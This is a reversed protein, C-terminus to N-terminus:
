SMFLYTNIEHDLDFNEIEDFTPTRIEIKSIKGDYKCIISTNKREPNEEISKQIMELLNQLTM